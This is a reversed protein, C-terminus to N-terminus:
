PAEGEGSERFRVCFMDWFFAPLGIVFGFAFRCNKAFQTTHQRKKPRLLFM